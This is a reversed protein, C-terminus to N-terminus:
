CPTVPEDYQITFNIRIGAFPFKNYQKEEFVTFGDFVIEMPEDFYQDISRVNKHRALKEMFRPKIQETYIYDQSFEDALRRLNCWFLVAMPREYQIIRSNAPKVYTVKEPGKAQFFMACSLNDNISANYYEGNGTYVQPYTRDDGTVDPFTDVYARLFVKGDLWDIESFSAQLSKLAKDLGVDARTAEMVSPSSYPM